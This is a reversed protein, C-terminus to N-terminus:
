AENNGTERSGLMPAREAWSPDESFSDRIM